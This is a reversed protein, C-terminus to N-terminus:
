EKMRRLERELSENLRTDGSERSLSLAREIERKGRARQDTAGYSRGLLYHAEIDRPCAKVLSELPPISERVKKMSLLILAKLRLAEGYLPELGLCADVKKLAEDSKGQEWLVDADHLLCYADIYSQGGENVRYISVDGDQYVRAFRDPNEEATKRYYIPWINSQIFSPFARYANFFLYNAGSLYIQLIIDGPKDQPAFLVGRVGTYLFLCPPHDSMIISTKEVYENIWGYAQSFPIRGSKVGMSGKAIILDPYANALAIVISAALLVIKMKKEGALARAGMLLFYYLLPLLPIIFRRNASPYLLIAAMYLLFYASLFASKREKLVIIFGYFWLGFVMIIFPAKWIANISTLFHHGQLLYFSNYLYFKLNAFVEQALSLAWASNFHKESYYSLSSSLLTLPITSLSFIAAVILMKVYSKRALLVLVAAAVLTLGPSRVWNCFSLVLSAVIMRGYRGDTSQEDSKLLHLALFSFFLYPLDSMVSSSLELVTPNLGFSFAISAAFLSSATHLKFYRYVMYVSALSFFLALFKLYYVKSYLFAVFPALLLPFGFPYRGPPAAPDEIHRYGQGTVLAKSCVIYVADDNFWGIDVWNMSILYLLALFILILLLPLEKKLLKIM